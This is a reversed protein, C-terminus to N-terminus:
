RGPSRLRASASVPALMPAQARLAGVGDVTLGGRSGGPAAAGGPPEFASAPARETAHTLDRPAFASETARESARMLDRPAFPSESVREAARM